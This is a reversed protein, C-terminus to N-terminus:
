RPSVAVPFPEAWTEPELDAVNIVGSLLRYWGCCIVAELLLDDSWRSRLVQMTEDSISTTEHLEDALRLVARDHEDDWVDDDPSGVATSRIQAESLGVQPRAFSTVHVGWEYGAGSRATTRAILLERERVTLRPKGLLGAGLPRMRGFLESHIALVRFLALPEIGDNGPPMWKALMDAVAPEYPPEVPAIGVM